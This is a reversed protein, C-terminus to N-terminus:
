ACRPASSAYKSQTSFPDSKFLMDRPTITGLEGGEWRKPFPKEDTSVKELNALLVRYQECSRAFVGPLKALLEAEGSRGSQAFVTPVGLALVVFLLKKM